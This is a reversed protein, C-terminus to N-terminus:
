HSIPILYSRFYTLAAKTRDINLVTMFSHDCIIYNSIHLHPTSQSLLLVPYLHVTHVNSQSLLTPTCLVPTCYTFLVTHTPTCLVPTCHTCHVTLTPTCLVPTQCAPLAVAVSAPRKSERERESERERGGTEVIQVDTSLFLRM